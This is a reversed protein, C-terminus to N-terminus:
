FGYGAQKLQEQTPLTTYTEGRPGIYVVGQKRLTVPTISGNSNVINVTVTSMEQQMQASQQQMQINQQRLSEMEAQTKKKDSENGIMYGATGGVAGGILTSETNRGIAQGIGAGAGAGILAGTQADSECGCAILGLSVGVVILITVFNKTM